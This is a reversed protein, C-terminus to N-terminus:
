RFINEEWNGVHFSMVSEFCGFSTQCHHAISLLRAIQRFWTHTCRFAGYRMQIPFNTNLYPLKIAWEDVHHPASQPTEHANNWHTASVGQRQMPLGATAQISREQAWISAGGSLIPCKRKVCWKGTLNSRFPPHAPTDHLFHRCFLAMVGM